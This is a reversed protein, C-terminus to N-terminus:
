KSSKPSKNQGAALPHNLIRQVEFDPLYRGLIRELTGDDRIERLLANWAQIDQTSFHQKSFVLRAAIGRDAPAWDRIAPRHDFPIHRLYYTYAAPHALIGQVKGARLWEFLQQSDQAEDIRQQNTLQRIFPELQEGHLFSKVKGWRLKPAALFDKPEPYQAAIAAPLVAMNKQILYPESFYVFQERDVAQLGSVSMMLSGNKLEHWIQARILVQINFECRSRRALEQVLDADIGKNKHFFLGFEHLGISIAQPCRPQAGLLSSYLLIILPIYTCAKNIM